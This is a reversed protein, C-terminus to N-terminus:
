LHSTCLLNFSDLEILFSRSQFGMFFSANRDISNSTMLDRASSFPRCSNFHISRAGKGYRPAWSYIFDLHFVPQVLLGWLSMVVLIEALARNMPPNENFSISVHLWLKHSYPLRHSNGHQKRNDSIVAPFSSGISLGTVFHMDVILALGVLDAEQISEAFNGAFNADM